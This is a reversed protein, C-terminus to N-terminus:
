PPSSQLWQGILWWILLGSCVGSLIWSRSYGELLEISDEILPGRKELKRICYFLTSTALIAGLVTPITTFGGKASVWMFLYAVMSVADTLFWGQAQELVVTSQLTLPDSEQNAGKKWQVSSAKKGKAKLIRSAVLGKWFSVTVSYLILIACFNVLLFSWRQFFETTEKQASDLLLCKEIHLLLLLTSLRLLYDFVAVPTHFRYEISKANYEAYKREGIKESLVVRLYVRFLHYTSLLVFVVYAFGWVRAIWQQDDPVPFALLRDPSITASSIGMLTYNIIVTHIFITFYAVETFPLPPKRCDARIAEIFSTVSV